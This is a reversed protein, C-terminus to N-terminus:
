NPAISSANIMSILKTYKQPNCTVELALKKTEKILNTDQWSAVRLDFFGHQHKGFVEGPGRLELDLEALEFGSLTKKM